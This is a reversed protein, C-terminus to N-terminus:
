CSRLKPASVNLNRHHAERARSQFSGFMMRQRRGSMRVDRAATAADESRVAPQPLPPEGPTARTPEEAVAAVVLLWFPAAAMIAKERQM